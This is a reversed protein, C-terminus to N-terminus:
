LLKYFHTDPKKAHYVKNCYNIMEARKTLSKFAHAINKGVFLRVYEESDGDLVLEIKEKTKLDLFVAKLKGRVVVFWEKKNKHYHNGRVINKKEFTVFYIQGLKEDEKDMHTGKLFDVLYGRHDIRKTSNVIKYDM